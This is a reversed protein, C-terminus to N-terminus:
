LADDDTERYPRLSALLRAGHPGSTEEAYAEQVLVDM